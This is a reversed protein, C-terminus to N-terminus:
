CIQSALICFSDGNTPHSKSFKVALGWNKYHSSSHTIIKVKQQITPGSWHDHLVCCYFTHVLLSQTLHLSSREKWIRVGTDLFKHQFKSKQLELTRRSSVMQCSHALWFLLQKKSNFYVSVRGNRLMLFFSLASLEAIYKYSGNSQILISHAPFDVM